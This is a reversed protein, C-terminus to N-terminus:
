LSARGQFLLNGVLASRRNGLWFPEPAPISQTAMRRGGLRKFPAWRLDSGATPVDGRGGDEPVRIGASALCAKSSPGGGCLGLSQGDAKARPGVHKELVLFSNQAM